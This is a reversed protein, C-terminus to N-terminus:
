NAFEHLSCCSLLICNFSGLCSGQLEQSVRRQQFPVSAYNKIEAPCFFGHSIHVHSLGPTIRDFMLLCYFILMKGSFKFPAYVVNSLDLIHRLLNSMASESQQICKISLNECNNLHSTANCKIFVQSTM